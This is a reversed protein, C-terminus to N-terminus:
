PTAKAPSSPAPSSPAPDSPPASVTPQGDIPVWPAQSRVRQLIKGRAKDFKKGQNISIKVAKRANTPFRDAAIRLAPQGRPQLVLGGPLTRVSALDRYYVIAKGCVLFRPGVLLGPQSATDLGWVAVAAIACAAALWPWTGLSFVAAAVLALLGFRARPSLDFREGHKYKFSSFLADSM